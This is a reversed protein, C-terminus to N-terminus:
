HGGSGMSKRPPLNADFSEYAREEGGNDSQVASSRIEHIISGDQPLKAVSASIRLSKKNAIDLSDVFKSGSTARHPSLKGISM